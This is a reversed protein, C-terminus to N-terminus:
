SGMEEFEKFQEKQLVDNFKQEIKLLTCKDIKKFNRKIYPLKAIECSLIELTNKMAKSPLCFSEICYANILNYKYDVKLIEYLNNKFFPEVGDYFGNFREKLYLFGTIEKEDVPKGTRISIIEDQKRVAFVFKKYVDKENFFVYVRKLVIEKM